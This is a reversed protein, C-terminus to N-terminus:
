NRAKLALAKSFDELLGLAAEFDYRSVKKEMDMLISDVGLGKLEV